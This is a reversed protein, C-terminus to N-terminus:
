TLVADIILAVDAEGGKGDILIRRVERLTEELAEIRMIAGEVSKARSPCKFQKLAAAALALDQILQTM